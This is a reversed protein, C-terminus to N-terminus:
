DRETEDKAVGGLDGSAALGYRERQAARRALEQILEAETFTQLAATQPAFSEEGRMHSLTITAPEMASAQAEDIAGDKWGLIAEIRRLTAARPWTMGSEFNAYSNFSMDHEDGFVQQRTRAGRETRALAVIRAQTAKLHKEM